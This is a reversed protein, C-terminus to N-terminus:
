RLEFYLTKPAEGPLYFDVSNQNNLENPPRIVARGHESWISTPSQNGGQINFENPDYPNQEAKFVTKGANNKISLTGDLNKETFGVRSGTADYLDSVVEEAHIM